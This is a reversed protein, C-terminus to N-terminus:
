WSSHVSNITHRGNKQGQQQSTDTIIVEIQIKIDNAENEDDFIIEDEFNESETLVLEPPASKTSDISNSRSDNHQTIKHFGSGQIIYSIQSSQEVLLIWCSLECVSIWGM